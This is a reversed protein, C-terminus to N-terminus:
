GCRTEATITTTAMALTRQAARLPALILAPYPDSVLSLAELAFLTSGSKGGGMPAWIGARERECIFDVISHQYVHPVFTKSL